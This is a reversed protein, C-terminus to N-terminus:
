RPPSRRRSPRPTRPSAASPPRTQTASPSRNRRSSAREPARPPKGATSPTPPPWRPPPPTAWSPPTTARTASDIRMDGNILRNRGPGMNQAILTSSVNVNGTVDLPFQPNSNGHGVFANSAVFIAPINSAQVMFPTANSPATGQAMGIVLNSGSPLLINSGSQTTFQSGVYAAGNNRFTGSLNIDGAVDLAYAANSKGIAVFANNCVVLANSSGNVQVHLPGAPNSTGVGIAKLSEPYSAAM